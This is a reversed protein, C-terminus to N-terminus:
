HRDRSTAPEGTAAEADSRTPTWAKRGEEPHDIKKGGQHLPPNTGRTQVAFGLQRRLPTGDPMYLVPKHFDEVTFSNPPDIWDDSRAM